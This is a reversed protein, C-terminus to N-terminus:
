EMLGAKRLEDEIKRIKEKSYGLRKFAEKDDDTMINRQREDSYNLKLQESTPLEMFGVFLLTKQEESLQKYKLETPLVKFYLCIWLDLKNEKALTRYNAKQL